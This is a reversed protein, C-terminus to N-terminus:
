LFLGAACATRASTASGHPAAADHAAVVRSHTSPLDGHSGPCGHHGPWSPRWPAPSTVTRNTPMSRSSHVASETGRWCRPPTAISPHYINECCMSAITRTPRPIPSTGSSNRAARGLSRRACGPLPQLRELAEAQKITRPFGDLLVLPPTPACPSRRHDRVCLPRLGTPGGRSVGASRSRAAHM